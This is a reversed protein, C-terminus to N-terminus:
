VLNFVLLDHSRAISALVFYGICLTFIFLSFLRSEPILRKSFLSYSGTPITRWLRGFPPKISFARAPRTQLPQENEHTMPHLVLRM